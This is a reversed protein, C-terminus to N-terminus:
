EQSSFPSAKGAALSILAPGKGNKQWSFALNKIGRTIRLPSKICDRPSRDIKPHLDRWNLSPRRDDGVTQGLRQ